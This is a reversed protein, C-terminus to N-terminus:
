TPWLPTLKADISEAMEAASPTLPHISFRAESYLGALDVFSEEPQVRQAYEFPTESIIPPGHVM